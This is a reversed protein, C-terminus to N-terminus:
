TRAEVTAFRSRVTAHFPPTLRGEIRGLMVEATLRAVHQHPQDVRAFPVGLPTLNNWLDEDYTCIYLDRGVQVGLRRLGDLVLPLERFRVAVFLATPRQSLTAFRDVVEAAEGEVVYEPLCPIGAEQLAQAYGEFRYHSRVAWAMIRRHGMAILRLVADRSDAYDDSNVTCTAAGHSAHASMGGICVMPVRVRGADAMMEASSMAGWTLCCVVGDVMRGGDFMKHLPRGPMWAEYIVREHRLALEHQVLGVMNRWYSASTLAELPQDAVLGVAGVTSSRAHPPTRAVWTGRGRRTELVGQAVLDRIARHLTEYAVGSETTLQRLSPLRQGPLLEGSGIRALIGNKIRTFRPTQRQPADAIPPAPRPM